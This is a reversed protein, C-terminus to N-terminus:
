KYVNLLFSSGHAYLQKNLSPRHKKILLAEHIKAQFDSKCQKLVEFSNVDHRVNSCVTYSFINERQSSLNLHEGVRTSLHRTSKGIYTLNSDCSCIFKYVVNSCLLLPTRSKLQFYTGTKFTKYIASVKVDFKVHFLKALRSVFRRSEKGIYPVHLYVVPNIESRKRDSLDNDVTLYRQSFKNFFWILYGNFLFM